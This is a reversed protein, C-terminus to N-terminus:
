SSTGDDEMYWHRTIDAAILATVAGSAGCIAAAGAVGASISADGIASPAASLAWATYACGAAFSQIVASTRCWSVTTPRNRFAEAHNRGLHAFIGIAGTLQGLFLSIFGVSGIAWALQIAIAAIITQATGLLWGARSPLWDRLRM